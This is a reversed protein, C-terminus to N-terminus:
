YQNYANILGKAYKKNHYPTASHYRALAEWTCGHKKFNSNSLNKAFEFSDKLSFFQHPYLNNKHYMYCIQFPGLDMNKVGMKTLYGIIQTCNAKNRCDLTRNDIMFRKDEVKLKRVDTKKNFSILYPYGVDRSKHRENSAIAYLMEYTATCNASASDFIVIILIFIGFFKKM